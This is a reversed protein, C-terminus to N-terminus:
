CLSSRRLSRIIHVIEEAENVIFDPNFAELEERPRFGWTVGCSRVGAALATQMDVGSDGVYLAEANNIHATELIERVIFPDPKPPTHERQGVVRCFHIHPFYHFILKRTAAHIKNSAVALLLGAQQLEQLMECIGRYPVTRDTDHEKYYPIFADRLALLTTETRKDEPLVREFLKMIGNGVFYPYAAEPHTPFGNRALAHNTAAALDSITNLLTGDLDFLVLKIM